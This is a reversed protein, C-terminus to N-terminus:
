SLGLIGTATTGTKVKLTRIPLLTGNTVGFFTIDSGSPSDVIVIGGTGVWLAKYQNQETDSKTVAEAITYTPYSM